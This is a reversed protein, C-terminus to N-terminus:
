DLNEWENASISRAIERLKNTDFASYDHTRTSLEAKINGLKDLSMNMYDHIQNDHAWKKLCIQTHTETAIENCYACRAPANLHKASRIHRSWHSKHIDVDCVNCHKIPLPAHNPPVAKEANSHKASKTHRQWNSKCVDVDCVNCHKIPLPAHNPPPLRFMESIPPPLLGYPSPYSNPPVAPETISRSPPPLRFMESIPPPLLGYPSPYSNPPPVTIPRNPMIPLPARHKPSSVAKEANSHKASKTHRQWNSKSIDVDCVNCHKIPLPARNRPPLRFMESIPPPLLGYPSTYSSM